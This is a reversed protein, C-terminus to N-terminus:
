VGVGLKALEVEVRLEIEALVGKLRPDAGPNQHQRLTTALAELKGQTITGLILDKRLGELRDLMDEARAIGKSRGASADPAEQLALLGDMAALPATGLLPAPAASESLNLASRFSAGDARTQKRSTAGTSGIRSTGNIKM